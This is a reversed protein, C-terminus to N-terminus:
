AGVWPVELGVVPQAVKAYAFVHERLDVALHRLFPGSHSLGIGSCSPNIRNTRSKM